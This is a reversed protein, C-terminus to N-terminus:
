TWYQLLDGIYDIHFGILLVNRIIFNGLVIALAIYCFWDKLFYYRKGNHRILTIIAGIYYDALILTIFPVVPHYLFSKVPHFQLMHYTARTGGCGPCYVHLYKAFVCQAPLSQFIPLKKWLFACFLLVLVGVTVWIFIMREQKVFAHLQLDSQKNLERNLDNDCENNFKKNSESENM